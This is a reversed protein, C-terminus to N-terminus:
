IDHFCFHQPFYLLASEMACHLTKEKWALVPRLLIATSSKASTIKRSRLKLGRCPVKKASNKNFFFLRLSLLCALLKSTRYILKSKHLTRIALGLCSSVEICVSCSGLKYSHLTPPNVWGSQLITWLKLGSLDLAAFHSKFRWLSQFIAIFHDFSYLRSKKITLFTRLTKLFILLSWLECRLLLSIGFTAESHDFSEM